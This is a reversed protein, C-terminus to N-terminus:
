IEESLEMTLVKKIQLELFDQLQVSGFLGM